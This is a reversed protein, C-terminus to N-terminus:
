SSSIVQRKYVDLHTYSVSMSSMRAFAAPLMSWCSVSISFKVVLLTSMIMTLASSELATTSTQLAALQRKYVDLHTYSVAVYDILDKLRGKIHWLSTTAM